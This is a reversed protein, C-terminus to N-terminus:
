LLGLAKFSAHRGRSVIIHDILTLGLKAGADRVERTMAIDAASPAPDGSPHNHVLIVGTAGLELARKVVERPYLPTHDVTGQQQLEDTILKNKRDLFLLRFQEIKAHAMSAQLYDLLQLWSGMVPRNIAQTRTLRVAAAEVAKLAAAGSEGLGTEAMLDEPRATIVDAFSGFRKILRKALPKVDRRPLSPFLLLEILEYDHLASPGGDLFRRRLRKRHGHHDPRAADAGPPAEAKPDAM